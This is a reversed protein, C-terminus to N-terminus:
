RTAARSRWGSDGGLARSLVAQVAAVFLILLLIIALVRAPDLTQAAEALLYGLGSESSLMEGLIVSILCLAAGIRVGSLVLPAGAPLKLAYELQFPTAGYARGVRIYSERVSALGRLTNIAIPFSGALAAFLIKSSPGVGFWLIFVPFLLEIPTMYGWNLMPDVALVRLRSRSGVFGVLMGLAAAIVFSSVFEFLTEAVNPWTAPDPVLALFQAIVAAIPPLVIPSAGGPGVAYEWIGLGLAVAGLRLAWTVVRPGTM